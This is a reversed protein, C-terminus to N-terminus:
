KPGAKGLFQANVLMKGLAVSWANTKANIELYLLLVDYTETCDFYEGM